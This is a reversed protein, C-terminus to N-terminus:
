TGHQDGLWLLAKDRSEQAFSFHAIVAWLSSPAHTEETQPRHNPLCVGVALSGATTERAWPQSANREQFWNGTVNPCLAHAKSEQPIIQWTVPKGLACHVSEEDRETRTHCQARTLHSRLRTKTLDSSPEDHPPSTKTGDEVPIRDDPPKGDVLAQQLDALLVRRADDGSHEIRLLPGATAPANKGAVCERVATKTKTVWAAVALCRPRQGDICEMAKLQREFKSALIQRLYTTSRGTLHGDDSVAHLDGRRASLREEALVGIM